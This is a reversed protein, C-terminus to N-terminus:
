MKRGPASINRWRIGASTSAWCKKRTHWINKGRISESMRFHSRFVRRTRKRQLILSHCRGKWRIKRRKIRRISWRVASWVKRSAPERCGTWRVPNSLAKWHANTSKGARCGTLLIKWRASNEMNPGSGCLRMWWRSVSVRSRRYAMASRATRFLSAARARM